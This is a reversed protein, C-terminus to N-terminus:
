LKNNLLFYLRNHINVESVNHDYDIYLLNLNPYLDKIKKEMGRSIIHNAICGFPQLSIINNVGSEAYNAIEAPILWGEGYQNTLSLIKEARRASTYISHSRRYFRFKRCISEMRNIHRRVIHDIGWLLANTRLSRKMLHERQNTKYNVLDQTLFDLLSPVIVEIGRENLWEVINKNAFSNYKLYIEGVIGVKPYEGEKVPIGNFEKVALRIQDYIANTNGTQIPQQIAKLHKHMLTYAEGKHQERVVTAYYMKSLADYALIAVLLPRVLKLWPLNFGEQENLNGTAVSIVPVDEFGANLLAKKLLVIYNSARCQGGTQTLAVVTQKPDYLGSRLAKLIDGIVIIAPYCIENNTYRTGLELSQQDSPPLTVLRYGSLEFIPPFLESYIDSFLPALITKKGDQTHKFVPTQKRAQRNDKLAQDSAYKMFEVMSRLRLRISGTSTIEDVRILTNNKGATQLIEQAEDIVIADPGCGFSNIQVFQVNKGQKAAWTAADAIRNPYTWQSLMQHKSGEVATLVDETIIDVGFESLIQATKQNILEDTHYPRGCLVILPRDEALAKEIVENGKTTIDHKFQKQAELAARFAKNIYAEKVGLSHLYDRCAAKLLKEDKFSFVPTDFPIGYRKEPNVSSRIVEAYSSVIPCNFSNQSTKSDKEEFYVMPLFIRDVGKEVLDTVHGHVLKAPFCINDSMVTGLGKEYLRMSSPQSLKVNMGAERLLTSWFPFNEFMNLVRPIGITLGGRIKNQASLVGEMSALSGFLRNIKYASMNFGPEKRDAKNSFIKECKNGSYFVNRNSFTFKSILCFNECGKCKFQSKEHKDAQELTQVDLQAASQLQATGKQKAILASGFAGMLEPINSCFVHKGTILELARQVSPNKFTGGQVVINDGLDDYNTVKLVKQLCNKIVSYSLGAAIDNVTANERLAQKVRSNMFVTCRSGLDCPSEARCAMQAFDAVPYGLSRGFTEIFSGCGSSCAENLELRSIMGNRCFIAKMDQGGIDLIFSVNTCVHRAATYHAITEVVGYDIGFAARILNEGYGTVCGSVFQLNVGATQQQAFFEQLGKKVAGIPDGNNPKYHRFLLEENEGIVVIKTTTSGSDIGLYCTTGKYDTLPTLKAVQVEKNDIWQQFLNPTNFLQPLRHNTESTHQTMGEISARITQLNREPNNESLLATGFAPVVEPYQPMVLADETMNLVQLFANKLKPLFSFPGGCFMVKPTIDFGKALSNITQIAVAHFVSAIIDSKSVENSVLNQVDTKAFVGCRSAIPFVTANDEVFENLNEIPINLLTAIQDIFAGTGGACNGNMRIDPMRNKHFFILKSDEGGLDVLVNVEPHNTKIFENAAIVEQVFPLGTKEAVGMGASGTVAIRATINGFQNHIDDLFATITEKIRANHRKYDKYIVQQQEDLLVIKATTSGIDLGIRFQTNM